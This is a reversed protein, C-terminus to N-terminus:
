PSRRPWHHHVLLMFAFAVGAIIFRREPEMELGGAFFAINGLAHFAAVSTWSHTVAIIASFVFAIGVIVVYSGILQEEGAGPQLFWLHWAWWISGIIVTRPIFHIPELADQMFGRWGIEEGLAYLVILGGLIGGVVHADMGFNNPVGFAALVTPPTVALALSGLRWNGLLTSTRNQQGFLGWSLLAALAPGGGILLAELAFRYLLPFDSTNHFDFFGPRFAGSWLTAVLVFVALGTWHIRKM